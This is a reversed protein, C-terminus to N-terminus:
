ELDNLVLNKYKFWKPMKIHSILSLCGSSLSELHRDAVNTQSIGTFDTHIKSSASSFLAWALKQNLVHIKHCSGPAEPAHAGKQSLMEESM